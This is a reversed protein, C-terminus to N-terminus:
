SKTKLSNSETSINSKTSDYSNSSCIKDLRKYFTASDHASVESKPVSVLWNYYDLERETNEM